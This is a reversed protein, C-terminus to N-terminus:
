QQILDGRLWMAVFGVVNAVVAMVIWLGGFCLLTLLARLGRTQFLYVPAIVPWAFYLMSDFDYCTKRGRKRADAMVWAAVTMSFVTKGLMSVARPPEAGEPGLGSVVGWAIMLTWLTLTPAVMGQLWKM